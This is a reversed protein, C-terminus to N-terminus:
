AARLGAPEPQDDILDELIALAHARPDEAKPSAPESASCKGVLVIENGVRAFGRGIRPERCLALSAIPREGLAHEGVRKAGHQTLRHLDSPSLKAVWQVIDDPVGQMSPAPHRGASTKSLAYDFLRQGVDVDLDPLDGTSAKPADAVRDLAEEVQDVPPPMLGPFVSRTVWKGAEWVTKTAAAMAAIVYALMRAFTRM